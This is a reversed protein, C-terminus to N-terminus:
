AKAIEEKIRKTDFPKFPRIKVSTKCNPCSTYYIKSGTYEWNHKCRKCNLKM